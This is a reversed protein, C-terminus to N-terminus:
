KQKQKFIGDIEIIDRKLGNYLNQKINYKTTNIDLSEHINGGIGRTAAFWDILMENLDIISMKEIDGYFEPHHRNRTYHAIKAPMISDVLNYYEESGFKVNKRTSGLIYVYEFEEKSFKSLDHKIARKLLVIIFKITFWFILLKHKSIYIIASLKQRRTLAM